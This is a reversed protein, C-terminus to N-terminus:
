NRDEPKVYEQHLIGFIDKESDINIYKETGIDIMNTNALKYGFEKAKQRMKINFTKSGTLYMEAYPKQYRNVILMDMRVAPFEENLYIISNLIEKEFSLIELIIKNEKLEYILDKAKEVLEISQETKDNSYLLIDIDGCEKVKRRYSGLIEYKFNYKDAFVKFEKSFETIQARPIRTNLSKDYEVGIRQRKNTGCRLHEKLEEITKIGNNYFDKAKSIGIGDISQADNIFKLMFFDNDNLNDLDEIGTITDDNRYKLINTIHESIKKGIGPLDKVQNSNTINFDVEKIQLIARNNALMQYRTDEGQLKRYIALYNLLKIILANNKYISM